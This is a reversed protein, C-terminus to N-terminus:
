LAIAESKGSRAHEQIPVGSLLRHEISLGHNWSIVKNRLALNNKSLEQVQNRLDTVLDETELIERKKLSGSAQGVVGRKVKSLEESM